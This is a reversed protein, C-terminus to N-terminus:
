ITYADSPAAISEMKAPGLGNLGDDSLEDATDRPRWDLGRLMEPHGPTIQRCQM